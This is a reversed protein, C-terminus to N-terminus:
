KIVTCSLVMFCFISSYIYFSYLYWFFFLPLTLLTILLLIINDFDSEVIWANEFKFRRLLKSHTITPVCVLLLPYHDSATATVYELRANQFLNCWEGNALARDLKEEVARVTGLSKFWTYTLQYSFFESIYNAWIWILYKVSKSRWILINTLSNNSFWFSFLLRM